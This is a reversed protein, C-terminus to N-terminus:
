SCGIKVVAQFELKNDKTVRGRQEIVEFWHIKKNMGKLANKVADCYCDYSVGAKEIIQFEDM